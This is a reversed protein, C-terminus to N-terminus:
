SNAHVDHMVSGREGCWLRFWVFLQLLNRLYHGRKAEHADVGFSNTRM